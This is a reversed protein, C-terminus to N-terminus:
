ENFCFAFLVTRNGHINEEDSLVSFVVLLVMFHGPRVFIISSQNNINWKDLIDFLLSPAYSIHAAEL